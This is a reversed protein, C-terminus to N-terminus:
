HDKRAKGKNNAQTNANAERLEVHLKFTALIDPTLAALAEAGELFLPKIISAQRKANATVFLL